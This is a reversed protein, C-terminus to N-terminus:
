DGGWPKEWVARTKPGPKIVNEATQAMQAGLVTPALSCTGCQGLVVVGTSTPFVVERKFCGAGAGDDFSLIKKDNNKKCFIDNLM